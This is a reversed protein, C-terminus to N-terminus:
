LLRGELIHKRKRKDKWASKAADSQRRRTELSVKTGSRAISIKEKSKESHHKGLRPHGYLAFQKITSKSIEKKHEDSLIRGLNACGIKLRTEVSVLRGKNAKSIKNRTETSTKQGLHNKRLKECVEKPLKKGKWYGPKGKNAESLKRKTEDSHGKGNRWGEGGDTLNTLRWGEAKGYAIWAREETSGSGNVEGILQILPLKGTKLLSRIWDEKYGRRGLRAGQLHKCLRAQLSKSTKGVYRIEGSPECLVYIKTFFVDDVLEGKTIM